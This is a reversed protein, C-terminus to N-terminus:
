ENNKRRFHNMFYDEALCTPNMIYKESLIGQENELKSSVDIYEFGNERATAILLSNIARAYNNRYDYVDVASHQVPLMSLFVVAVNKEKAWASLNKLEQEIEQLREQQIRKIEEIGKDFIYDFGIIESSSFQVYIKKFEYENGLAVIEKIQLSVKREFFYTHAVKDDFQVLWPYAVMKDHLFLFEHFEQTQMDLLYKGLNFIPNTWAQTNHKGTLHIYFMNNMYPKIPFEAETLMEGFDAVAKCILSKIGLVRIAKVPSCRIHLKGDYISVEEITPGTSSYFKGQKLADTIEEYSFNNTCIYVAAQIGDFEQPAHYDNAAVCKVNKGSWIMERWAAGDEPMDYCSGTNWVEMAFLGNLSLYDQPEAVSWIPHNYTILFGLENGKQIAYNLWEIQNKRDEIEEDHPIRGIFDQAGKQYIYQPNYFPMKEIDPTQALFNLHVQKQRGTEDESFAPIGLEFANLAIFTEDTLEEHHRVFVDHDTFAVVSFGHKQYLEKAELPTLVGDSCTTHTHLEAKHQKENESILYIKKM